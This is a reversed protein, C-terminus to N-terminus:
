AVELALKCESCDDMFATSACGSVGVTARFGSAVCGWYGLDEAGGEVQKEEGLYGM